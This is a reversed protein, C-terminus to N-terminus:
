KYLSSYLSVLFMAIYIILIAKSHLASSIDKKGMERTETRTQQQLLANRLENVAGRLDNYDRILTQTKTLDNRLEAIDDKINVLINILEAQGYSSAKGELDKM